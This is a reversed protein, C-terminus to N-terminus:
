LLYNTCEFFENKPKTLYKYFCPLHRCPFCRGVQFIDFISRLIGVFPLIHENKGHFGSHFCNVGAKAVFSLQNKKLNRFLLSLKSPRFQIQFRQLPFHLFFQRCLFGQKLVYTIIDKVYTTFSKYSINSPVSETNLMLDTQEFM